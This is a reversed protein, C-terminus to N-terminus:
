KFAQRGPLPPPLLLHLLTPRPLGWVSGRVGEEAQSLGAEAQLCVEAGRAGGDGVSDTPTCIPAPVLLATHLNGFFFLFLAAM